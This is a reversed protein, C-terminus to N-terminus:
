SRQLKALQEERAKSAKEFLIDIQETMKDLAPVADRLPADAITKMLERMIVVQFLVAGPLQELASQNDNM